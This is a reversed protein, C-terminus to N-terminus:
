PGDAPLLRHQRQAVAEKAPMEPQSFANEPGRELVCDTIGDYEKARWGGEAKRKRHRNPIM